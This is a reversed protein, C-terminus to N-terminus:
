QPKPATVKVHYRVLAIADYAAHAVIPVFINGTSLFLGHFFMGSLTATLFYAVTAAHLCGFITASLAVIAAMPLGTKAALILPLFGRFACEECLGVLMSLPIVVGTVKGLQRRSGFLQLAVESTAEDIKRVWEWETWRDLLLGYGLLPVMGAVGLASAAPSVMCASVVQERMAASAVWVFLGVFALQTAAVAALAVWSIDPPVDVAGGRGAATMDVVGGGDDRGSAGAGGLVGGEAEEAAAGVAIAEQLKREFAEEIAQEEDSDGSSDGDTRPSYFLAGVGGLVGKARGAWGGHQGLAASSLRRQLIGREVRVGGRWRRRSTSSSSSGSSTRSRAGLGEELDTAAGATQQGYQKRESGVGSTMGSYQPRSSWMPNKVSMAAPVSGGPIFSLASPSFFSCCLATAFVSVRMARRECM